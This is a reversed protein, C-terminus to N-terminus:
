PSCKEQLDMISGGRGLFSYGREHGSRLKQEAGFIRKGKSALEEPIRRVGGFLAEEAKEPRTRFIQPRTQRQGPGDTQQSAETQASM